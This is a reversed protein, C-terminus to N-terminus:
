CHAVKVKNIPKRDQDRQTRGERLAKVQVMFAIVGGVVAGVIAGVIASLFESM